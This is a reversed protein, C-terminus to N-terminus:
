LMRQFSHSVEPILAAIEQAPVNMLEKPELKYMGGGYVRGENIMQDPGIGRLKQWIIKKLEPSHKIARALAPKPYLGLFSNSITAKSHNLIFRFPHEKGEKTRGIYTCAFIPAERKEQMYWPSRNKCLYRAAIGRSIGEQYYDWLSPYEDKIVHQPLNCDLLFLPEEILPFGDPDAQIETQKVFRPSPLIPKFFAWPLGKKEIQSRTLIFFKNEGTALGRKITFFDGLTPQTNEESIGNIPIRSWKNATKLAELPISKITAPCSLSGGYTFLVKHYPLPLENRFWVVASSVLADDFQVDDPRFRHIQILTVKSTLYEKIIRGYNVDMFESPILWGAIGGAQMWEHSLGLFYCYLGALGSIKKGFTRTTQKQLRLKDTDALHQHRVYPPNSIVLNYKASEHLPATSKTFDGLHLELESNQWLDRAAQWFEADLEFATAKEVRTKGFALMLASYFSGTGFAPELFRIPTNQPFLTQAFKLIEQSLLPPTAFQGMQNREKQTRGKDLASQLVLRQEEITHLSAKTM